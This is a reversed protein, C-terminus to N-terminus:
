LEETKAAKVGLTERLDDLSRPATAPLWALTAKSGKDEIMEGLRKRCDRWVTPTCVTLDNVGLKPMTKDLALVSGCQLLVSLIGSIAEETKMQGIANQLWTHTQSGKTVGPLNALAASDYCYALRFQQFQPRWVQNDVVAQLTGKESMITEYYSISDALALSVRYWGSPVIILDGPQQNAEQYKALGFEEVLETLKEEFFMYASTKDFELAERAKAAVRQMEDEKMLLWRKSGHILVDYFPLGNEAHLKDGSGSPGFVFYRYSLQGQQKLWRQSKKGLISPLEDAAAELLLRRFEAQVPLINKLEPFINLEQLETENHVMSQAEVTQECHETNQGPLMPKAPTGHFCNIVYRSFSIPTPEEMHLQNGVLRARAKEPPWYEIRLTKELEEDEMIRSATWHRKVRTWDDATFLETANTVLMPADFNFDKGSQLRKRLEKAGIKKVTIKKAQLKPMAKVRYKAPTFDKPVETAKREGAVKSADMVKQLQVVMNDLFRIVNGELKQDRAHQLLALVQENTKVKDDSREITLTATLKLTQQARAAPPLAALAALLPLAWRWAM